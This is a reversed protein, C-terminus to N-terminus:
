AAITTSQSASAMVNMFKIYMFTTLASVVVILLIKKAFEMTGNEKRKLILAGRRFHRQYQGELRVKFKGEQL